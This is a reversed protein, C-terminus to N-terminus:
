LAPPRRCSSQRESLSSFIPFGPVPHFEALSAELLSMHRNLGAIIPAVCSNECKDFSIRKNLGLSGDMCTLVDNSFQCGVHLCASTEHLLSALFLPYPRISQSSVM